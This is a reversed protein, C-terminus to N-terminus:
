AGFFNYTRIGFLLSILGWTSGLVCDGLIVGLFFPIMKRYGALGSYRLTLAKLVWAILLPMWVLNIAWSSSVAFGIPHLPFSWFRFRLAALSLVCLCGICVASIASTNPRADHGGGVWSALRSFSERSMGTGQNFAAAAGYQYALHEFAWFSSVAGVATALLIAGLMWRPDVGRLRAMQMGELGVPMTDSRHARTFAYGMTFFGLDAQSLAPAGYVRPLVQDPGMFHFDHVPSGMEARIRTVVVLTALYLGLFLIAVWAEMGAITCFVVLGVLGLCVGAFTTRESIAERPDASDADVEGAWARRLIDMLAHRGTWLYLLALGIIAGVGQEKQYPYEPNADWAMANAVVLQMKWMLWFFWCSFLLDLPLLFGLGIALPYFTVPLWDIGSWPRATLFPKLDLDGLNVSPLSPNLFAIGNLLSLGGAASFGAWMLPNRYFAGNSDTMALPLWVLPFTLRERDAWQRRMLVNVGQAVFLLLCIFLTWAAVPGIWAHITPWTYFTSHGLFHGRLVDRDRILLWGPIPPKAVVGPHGEGFWAPYTMLQNLTPVGDLGALGTSISLMTYLILMERQSFAWRPLARRMGANLAAFVFLLFVVNAFMSITSPYPGFMLRELRVVWLCNVPIVLVGLVVARVYGRPLASPDSASDSM